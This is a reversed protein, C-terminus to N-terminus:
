GSNRLGAAIGNVTIHLVDRLVESETENVSERFRPLLAVQLFNMPDIYPNRVRIASQLWEERELLKEQGTLRLIMRETRAFEDGLRPFIAKRVEGAALTSYVEAIVMDAKRMAMQANNIVTWFFPWRAYMTRLLEWRSEEGGTWTEIGTGLGFWGPLNVRSQTWSFVWPIARLDGISGGAKRKAPRSGINLRSILDIPTAQHFYDVLEPTRHVLDRYCQEAAASMEKLATEWSDHSASEEVTAGSGDAIEGARGTMLLVASTLQELHRRAIEDNSYRETITEGQETVKIRGRISEAPQALIMRNAPGGGRGISGGRGHFLTLVVGAEDCVHALERQAVHLERNSALYGGDKNSDSYGIMVQQRRDMSQLHKSYVANGFLRKMVGASAHLDEVTEFLPVIQLGEDAGCIKALLLVELVDSPAEAMSIVYSDIARPGMRERAGRIVGFVELIRSTEESVGVRRVGAGGRELVASLLREQDASDMSAYGEAIGNVRFLEDLAKEHKASHERIDLTALHFGFTEAQVVLSGFRGEALLAARNSSLSDRICRLDALFEEPTEYRTSRLPETTPTESEDLTAALRRYIFFLMQRYPQSPYRRSVHKAIEPFRTAAGALREALAESIGCRDSTSLHGHMRDITRMYLRVAMRRQARLTEETFAPTVFPNGDRDGGIWSGFEIFRPIRALPVLAAGGSHVTALEPAIRGLAMSVSHVIRPVLDFLTTEFYYLGNRVEDLVSPKEPRGEETQWLSLVHERLDLEIERREQPTPRERELRQLLAAIESLKTLITRRKVETPHATFVPRVALRGLLELIKEGGMGRSHLRSIADALTEALPEGKQEWAIARAHLVRVREAEEALNVLRFYVAFAKAIARARPLSLSKVIELLESAARAEGARHAKALGRIREELDFTERGEQDVIVDGLLDGLLHIQDSLLSESNAQMRLLM